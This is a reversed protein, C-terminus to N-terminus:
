YKMTIETGRKVYPAILKYPFSETIVSYTSGLRYNRNQM